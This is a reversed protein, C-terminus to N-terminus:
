NNLIIAELKDLRWRQYACELALAESYRIGYSDGAETILNGQENYEAEWSDHCFLGYRSADLGESAFAEAVQQAIVGVHLRADEEGKKEIADRMQFVKFNVKGWARMLAEDIDEVNDKAREDSSDIEATVAYINAWKKSGNGLTGIGNPSSPIFDMRSTTVSNGSVKSTVVFSMRGALLGKEVFSIHHSRTITDTGITGHTREETVGAYTEYTGDQEIDRPHYFQLANYRSASSDASIREKVRVSATSHHNYFLSSSESRMRTLCFFRNRRARPKPTGSEGTEILASTHYYTDLGHISHVWFLGEPEYENTDGSWDSSMFPKSVRGVYRGYFSMFTIAPIQSGSMHYIYKGDSYIGQGVTTMGSPVTFEQIKLSSIDIMGNGDPTATKVYEMVTSMEWIRCKRINSSNVAEAILYKSDVSVTAALYTDTTYTASDFLKLRYIYTPVTETLYDWKVVDVYYKKSEIADSDYRNGPCILLPETDRTPRYLSNNQHGCRDHAYTTAGLMVRETPTESWRMAVLRMTHTSANQQALYLVNDYSDVFASQTAANWRNTDPSYTSINPYDTGADAGGLNWFNPDSTHMEFVRATRKVESSRVLEQGEDPLEGNVLSAPTKNTFTVGGLTFFKGEPSSSLVYSGAPILINRGTAGATTFAGTDDTVGDGVAGFDKVNVVDGFRDRLDRAATSGVAIPEYVKSKSM